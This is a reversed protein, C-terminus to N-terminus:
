GSSPPPPAVSGVAAALARADAIKAEVAVPVGRIVVTLYTKGMGAGAARDAVQADFAESGLPVAGLLSKPKSGTIRDAAWLFLRRDSAAWIMDDALRIEAPNVASGEAVARGVVGLMGLAGTKKAVKAAAVFVEGPELLSGQSALVNKLIDAM